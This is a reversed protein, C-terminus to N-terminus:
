HHHADYEAIINAPVRGRDAVTYGKGRAWARIANLRERDVSPTARRVTGKPRGAGRHHTPAAVPRAVKTFRGLADRLQNYHVEHLDIEYHKGDLMFHYTKAGPADDLDDHLISKKAM